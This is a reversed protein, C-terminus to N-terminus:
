DDKIKKMPQVILGRLNRKGTTKKYGISTYFPIAFMSAKVNISNNEDFAQEEFKQMLKKGIGKGHYKGDVFLNVLRGKVGRVMGIIKKNEIAVFFIKTGEVRERVNELGIKKSDFRGIYAQVAKKSGEKSNYKSFTERILETVGLLDKKSYKRITIM